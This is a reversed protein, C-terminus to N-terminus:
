KTDTSSTNISQPKIKNSFIEYLFYLNVSLFMLATTLMLGPLKYSPVLLFCFILKTGLAICSSVLMVKYQGCSAFYQALVVSSFFFPLQFVGFRIAEAVSHTNEATFAGRELLLEVIMTAAFYIVTCALAGVAFLIKFWHLALLKKQEPSKTTNSFVPLVARGVATAGLGLFLAIIKSAYGLTAINGEGLTSAFYLGIPDVLSALAQSVFMISLGDRLITWADMNGTFKPKFQIESKRCIWALILVQLLLGSLIGIVFPPAESSTSPWLLLAVVLTIAPIADSLTNVHREEALLQASLQVVVLSLIAVPALGICMQVMLRLGTESTETFIMPLLPPLGLALAATLITGCILTLGLLQGNFLGKKDPHLKHWAPIYVANIVTLWIAPILTVFGFSITYADVVESIGFRNAIAVEKVAGFIKGIFLFVGVSVLGRVVRMNDSLNLRSDNNM